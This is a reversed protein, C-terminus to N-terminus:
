AIHYKKLLSKESSYRMYTLAEDIPVWIAHEDRIHSARGANKITYFTIKKGRKRDRVVGVLEGLHCDYLGTEERFERLATEPLSEGVKCRWKPLMYTGHKHTICLIETHKWRNRICVGGACPELWFLSSLYRRVRRLTKMWSLKKNNM